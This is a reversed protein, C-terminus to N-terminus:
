GGSPKVANIAALVDSIPVLDGPDEGRANFTVFGCGEDAFGALFRRLDDASKVHVITLNPSTNGKEDCFRDLEDYNKFLAIYQKGDVEGGGVPIKKLSSSLGSENGAIFMLPYEVVLPNSMVHDQLRDTLRRRPM